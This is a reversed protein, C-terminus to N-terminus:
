AAGGSSFAGRALKQPSPPIARPSSGGPVAHLLDTARMWGRPFVYAHWYGARLAVAAVRLGTHASLRRVLDNRAARMLRPHM